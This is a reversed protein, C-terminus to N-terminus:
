AISVCRKMSMWGTALFSLDRSVYICDNQQVRAYFGHFARALTKKWCTSGYTRRFEDKEGKYRVAFCFFFFMKLRNIPPQRQSGKAEGVCAAKHTDLSTACGEANKSGTFTAYVSTNTQKSTEWCIEPIYCLYCIDTQLSIVFSFSM